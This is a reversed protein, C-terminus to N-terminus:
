GARCTVPLFPAPSPLAGPRCSGPSWPGRHGDEQAPRARAGRTGRVSAPGQDCLSGSFLCLSATAKRPTREREPLRWLPPEGSDATGRQLVPQILVLCAPCPSRPEAPWSCRGGMSCLPVQARLSATGAAQAKIVGPSPVERHGHWGQPAAEVEGQGM